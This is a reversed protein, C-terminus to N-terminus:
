WTMSQSLFATLDGIQGAVFAVISIALLVAPLLIVLRYLM